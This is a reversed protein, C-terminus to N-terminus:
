YLETYPNGTDTKLKFMRPSGFPFDFARFERKIVNANLCHPEESIHSNSKAFLSIGHFDSNWYILIQGPKM